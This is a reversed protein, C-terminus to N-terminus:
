PCTTFAATDQVNPFPHGLSNLYTKRAGTKTDVATLQVGLDTLGSAFVWYAGNLACGDIVKVTLELNDSTFFWLYGAEPTVAHVYAVRQTGDRTTYFGEIDFRSRNLCLISDFPECGVATNPEFFTHDVNFRVPTVSGGGIVSACFRVSNSTLNLGSAGGSRVETWAGGGVGFLLEASVNAGYNPFVCGPELFYETAFVVSAAPDQGPPIFVWGGFDYGVGSPLAANICQCMAPGAGPTSRLQASGSSSSGDVDLTPDFVPPPLFSNPNQWGSTDRDFDPNVLLNQGSGAAAGMAAESVAAALVVLWCALARIGTRRLPVCETTGSRAHRRASM